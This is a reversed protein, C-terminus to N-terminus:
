PPLCPSTADVEVGSYSHSLAGSPYRTNNHTLHVRKNRKIITFLSHRTLVPMTKQHFKVTVLPPPYHKKKKKLSVKQLSLASPKIIYDMLRPLLCKSIPDPSPLSPSYPQTRHPFYPAPSCKLSIPQPEQFRVSSGASVGSVELHM